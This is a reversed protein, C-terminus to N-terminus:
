IRFLPIGARAIMRNVGLKSAVKHVLVGMLLPGYLKRIAHRPNWPNVGDYGVTCLGVHSVVAAMGDVAYASKLDLAMPVLGAIMAVSITTKPKHHNGKTRAKVGAKYAALATNGKPM